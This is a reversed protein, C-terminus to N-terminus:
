PRAYRCGVLDFPVPEAGGLELAFTTDNASVITIQSRRLPIILEMSTLKPHALFLLGPVPPEKALDGAYDCLAMMFDIAQGGTRLASDTLSFPRLRLEDFFAELAVSMQLMMSVGTVEANSKLERVSTLVDHIKSSRSECEANAFVHWHDRLNKQLAPLAEFAAKVPSEGPQEEDLVEPKKRAAETEELVKQIVDVIQSPEFHDKALFRTAGERWAADVYRSSGSTSFVVVPLNRYVQSARIKKLLEVGNVKPMFVDLLVIDPGFERLKALSEEASTASDFELGAKQFLNSYVRAVVADDDVLLIKKAVESM